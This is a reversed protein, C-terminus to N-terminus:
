GCGSSRQCRAMDNRRVGPPREGLVCLRRWCLPRVNVGLRECHAAARPFRIFAALSAVWSEATPELAHNPRVLM